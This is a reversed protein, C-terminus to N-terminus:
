TGGLAPFKKVLQSGAPNELLVRSWPNILYNLLYARPLEIPVYSALCYEFNRVSLCKYM